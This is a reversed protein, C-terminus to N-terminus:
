FITSLCVLLTHWYCKLDMPTEFNVKVCDQTMWAFWEEAKPDVEQLCLQVFSTFEVAYEPSQCFEVTGLLTSSLVAIDLSELSDLVRDVDGPELASGNFFQVIIHCAVFARRRFVKVPVLSPGQPLWLRVPPKATTETSLLGASDPAPFGVTCLQSNIPHEAAGVDESASVRLSNSQALDSNFESLFIIM